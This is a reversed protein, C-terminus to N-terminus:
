KVFAALILFMHLECHTIGNSATGAEANGVWADDMELRVDAELDYYRRNESGPLIELGETEYGQMEASSLTPVPLMHEPLAASYVLQPRYHLM